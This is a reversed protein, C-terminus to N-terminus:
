GTSAPMAARVLAVIDDIADIRVNMIEGDDFEIGLHEELNVLLRVLELSTLDLDEGAQSRDGPLLSGILTRIEQEDNM